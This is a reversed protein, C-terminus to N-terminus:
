EKRSLLSRVAATGLAILVLSGIIVASTSVTGPTIAGTTPVLQTQVPPPAAAVGVLSVDDVDFNVETGTSFKKLGRIFLSLRNSNGTQVTGTITEYFLPKDEPYEGTSGLRFQETLPMLHWTQVNDYNGQGSFDIGWHMEVENKNRDQAPAQSRMIAHLTLNYTTNPAVNATQYIAIVRDLVNAEVEFIEMLQAHKGTRIAEPWTEDYWGFHAQGNSYPQWNLAVGNNSNATDRQEFGGNQIVDGPGQNPPLHSEIRSDVTTVTFGTLALAALILCSLILTAVMKSHQPSLKVM